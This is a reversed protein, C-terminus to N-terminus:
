STPKKPQGTERMVANRIEDFKNKVFPNEFWNKPRVSLPTPRLKEHEQLERIQLGQSDCRLLMVFYNDDDGHISVKVSAEISNQGPPRNVVHVVEAIAYRKLVETAKTLDIEIEDDTLSSL